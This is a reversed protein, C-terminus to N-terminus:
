VCIGVVDKKGMWRNISVSQKRLEAVIFFAATHVYRHTRTDKWIVKTKEKSYYVSICNSSWVTSSIKFKLSGGYQKCEWWCNGKGGGRGLGTIQQTRIIAMRVLTLLYRMTSKSQTEGIILSTSCTKMDKPGDTHRQFFHRNLDEVISNKVYFYFFVSVKM